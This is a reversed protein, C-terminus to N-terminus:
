AALNVGQQAIRDVDALDPVLGHDPVTLMIGDDADRKPDPEPM